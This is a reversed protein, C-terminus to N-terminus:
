LFDSASVFVFVCTYVIKGLCFVNFKCFCVNQLEASFNWVGLVTEFPL